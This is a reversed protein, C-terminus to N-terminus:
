QQSLGAYRAARRSSPAIQRRCMPSASGPSSCSRRRRGARCGPCSRARPWRRRVRTARTACVRSGPGGNMRSHRARRCRSRSAVHDAFAGAPRAAPCDARPSDDDGPGKGGKGQRVVIECRALDLDKVRLRVCEMMRMGTGYLLRALLGHVGDIQALVLRVEDRTLVVPLRQPRKPREIEGLWPLELGLVEGYLFLLASLAQNHTSAAVDRENALHSLFAEIEPAGMERPHRLGHFHIFRRIWAVYAQETRYSYHMYRIRARVLDLLRPRACQDDPRASAPFLPEASETVSGQGRKHM